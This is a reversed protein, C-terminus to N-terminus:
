RKAGLQLAIQKDVESALDLDGGGTKGRAQVTVMTINPESPDAEVKVYVTKADVKAELVKGIEDAVNLKGLRMLVVKSAEYIQPVPREYRSEIKDRVAPVGWRTNGDITNVCGTLFSSLSGVLLLAFLIKKM